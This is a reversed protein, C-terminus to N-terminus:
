DEDMEEMLMDAYEDLQSAAEIWRKHWYITSKQYAAIDKRLKEIEADKKLSVLKADTLLLSANMIVKKIFDIGNSFDAIDQEQVEFPKERWLERGARQGQFFDMKDLIDLARMVDEPKLENM